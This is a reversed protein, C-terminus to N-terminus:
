QSRLTALLRTLGGEIDNGLHIRLARRGHRRLVEFDGVAQADRLVGFTFPENPIPRDNRPDRLEATFQIFVGTNPGGKHLQGTSHLFRPGYGVTTAVHTRDRIQTRLETLLRDREDTRLFFASLCCYDGAKILALHALVAAADSPPVSAGRAPLKGERAQADLLEKTALKAETVNPEDFPNIGLSVGAIATAFEWRFFEGGLDHTDPLSLEIVPHGVARLEALQAPAAPATAGEIAIVVFVRDNGYVEPAGLPELDIPVIGKGEKGISEAVLQEVWSGFSSLEPSMVLTMKDRGLKALAGLKAGLRAGPNRAVTTEGCATAMRRASAMLADLDVGLLAAPVLGFYSLASYRGGIDAANVFSRRFKLETARRSLETNPDTIAVFQAGALDVRGGKRELAKAWFHSEFSKVEITNGSKSAVVFLTRDFDIRSEIDAVAEPDTNDLVLLRPAGPAAGFTRLLVEPALSSGGMGLLVAFTFGERRIDDAFARLAGLEAAMAEPSTLWGLRNKISDAKKPDKTFIEPDKKWIRRVADQRQLLALEAGLAFAVGENTEIGAIKATRVAHRGGEFPTSLWVDTITTAAAEPMLRAGLCLVNADNHSRSLIASEQSWASVARIGRIKNAAICVGIGSGCVLLGFSGRDDRVALGVLAAYDPYDCAADTDPGLDVIEHGRGRLHDALKSRLSVGAHDSGVYIKM